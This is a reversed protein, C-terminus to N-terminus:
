ERANLDRLQRTIAAVEAELAESSVGRGTHYPQLMLVNLTSSPFGRHRLEMGLEHHVVLPAPARDLEGHALEPPQDVQQFVQFVQGVEFGMPAVPEDRHRLDVGRQLGLGVRGHVRDAIRRRGGSLAVAHGMLDTGGDLTRDFDERGVGSGHVGLFQFARGVGVPHAHTVISDEIRNLILSATHHDVANAMAAFGVPLMRGTASM